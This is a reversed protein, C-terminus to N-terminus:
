DIIYINNSEDFIAAQKNGLKIKEKDRLDLQGLSECDNDNCHVDLHCSLKGLNDPLNNTFVISGASVGVVIGDNKLFDLLRQRFGTENIRNLLYEPSGGCIYIVDYKALEENSIPAHLDYVFINEKQIGCKILDNLCKPLVEIADPFIAAVPIFVAKIESAHKTLFSLFKNKIGETELGCSTLLLKM